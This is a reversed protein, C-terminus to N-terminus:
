PLPNNPRSHYYFRSGLWLIHAELRSPAVQYSHGSPQQVISRITSVHRHAAPQMKLPPLCGLQSIYGRATQPTMRRRHRPTTHETPQAPPRPVASAPFGPVPRSSAYLRRFELEFAKVSSGKFLMALGRHVQWSLWTFSFSGALVQTCDIIVFKEKVQGSFKRGSKACYTDGCVSRVSMRTLHSSSIQMNDCMEVFLHLNADDLLLYVPVNRKRMVELIDCFIEVDSFTDMVIALMSTAKSIGERLLDRVSAARDSQLFLEVTPTGQLHSQSAPWCYDLDTPEKELDLPFLTSTQSVAAGGEQGEKEALDGQSSNSPSRVRMFIYDKEEQSLFDVENEHVLMEHYASLGHDLLADTALRASENHSLDLKSCLFSMYRMEQVRQRVKGLLRSRMYNGPSLSGRQLNMSPARCRASLVVHPHRTFSPVSGRM